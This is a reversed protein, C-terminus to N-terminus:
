APVSDVSVLYVTYLLYAGLMLAAEWRDLKRSNLTFMFVMLLITSAMM